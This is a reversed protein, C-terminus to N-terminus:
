LFSLYYTKVGLMLYRDLIVLFDLQFGDGRLDIFGNGRFRSGGFKSTTSIM